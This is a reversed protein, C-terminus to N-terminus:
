QMGLSQTNRLRDLHKLGVWIDDFVMNNIDGHKKRLNVTKQQHFGRYIMLEEALRLPHGLGGLCSPLRIHWPHVERISPSYWSVLM